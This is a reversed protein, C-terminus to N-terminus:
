REGKVAAEGEFLNVIEVRNRGSRKANYLATDASKFLTESTVGHAFTARSFGSVGFSATFTLTKDEFAIESGVCRSRIREAVIGAVVPTTEPLVIIFEEGGFRGAWDINKRLSSDIISSVAILVKDGALHGFMDNVSKFYDIDGIIISLASGHRVASEIAKPLQDHIYRRNYCGTLADKVSVDRIRDYEVKLEHTREEVKGEINRNLSSLEESMEKVTSFVITFRKSLLIAQIFIFFLLGLPLLPGIRVIFSAYLIDNISVVLLILGGACFALAGARKHRLARVVAIVMWFVLIGMFAYIAYVSWTFIRVPTVAIFLSFVGTVFATVREMSISTDETLVSRVFFSFSALCFCLSLYELRVLLTFDISPFVLSLFYGGSVLIRFSVFFCFLSFFLFQKEERRFCYIIFHYVGISAIAGTLFIFFLSRLAARRRLVSEDGIWITRWPGGIRYHYNSVQFVLESEPGDLDARTVQPLFQPIANAEISSVRGASVVPKGDAYLSFETSVTSTEFALTSHEAPLLVKLRYTASGFAKDKWVGPIVSYLSSGREGKLDSPLLIQDPYYEWEGSLSIRDSSNWSRLDLVGNRAEYIQTQSSMRFSSFMLTVLVASAACVVICIGSIVKKEIAKM